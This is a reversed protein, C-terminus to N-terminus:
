KEEDRVSQFFDCKECNGFKQAFTGQLKNNCVTGAIVWCARGANKGGNIGNLREDTSAPCAGFEDVNRGGPERGCNKFEWCNKKM